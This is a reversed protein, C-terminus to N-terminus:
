KRSEKRGNRATTPEGTESAARMKLIYDEVAIVTEATLSRRNIKAWRRLENIVPKPFYIHADETERKM